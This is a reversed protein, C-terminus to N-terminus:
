KPPALRSLEAKWNQSMVINGSGYPTEENKLMLFRKGDPHVDYWADGGSVDSVAFRGRFLTVPSDFSPTGSKVDMAVAMMKDGSRYFLRRGDKAWVPETGGDSSIQFKRARDPFPQVYIEFRNTEDSAFALWQGDPSITAARELYPTPTLLRWTQKGNTELTWIDGDATAVLINGKMSWGGLHLHQDSDALAEEDSADTKRLFVQRTRNAPNNVAYTVRRVDPKWIPTEADNAKFTLRSLTGSAFQYLWIDPGSDSGGGIGVVIEKGDPSLRPFEYNRKPAQLPEERGHSDVWVLARRNLAEGGPIYAISGERSAAFEVAGASAYSVLVDEIVTVPDGTVQLTAADFSAALLNGGRAFLLHGSSIYHPSAGGEVLIRRERTDLRFAGIAWNPDGKRASAFVIAKGDPLISPWLLYAESKDPKLLEQPAGGSASVRWLTGFSDFVISDDPLWTASRMAAADCLTFAAGGSVPIKRLKNDASLFGIWEGSPSFFPAAAGETGRIPAPDLRDASRLYIRTVGSSERAVFLLRSGDPSLAVSRMGVGSLLTVNSPLAIAFRTLTATPQPQRQFVFWALLSALSFGAALAVMTRRSITPKQQLAEPGSVAGGGTSMSENLIFQVVAIDTIRHKRDKTLCQQVLKRIGFPLRAPLASWDPDRGVVAELTESVDDGGFPRKGTLMEYLVVGFAWVDSSTDTVGGKAQEPSMYPATGLILGPISLLVRPDAPDNQSAAHVLKALGFDLVTVQGDPAVKINAPKLDRHVIGKRHAAELANAIQRAIDLAEDIPIPGRRLREELTEGEVLEMVICCQATSDELGYIRAINPHNMSALMQAERQLLSLRDSGGALRGPLLKLAVDRQLKSDRARFVVGMGGEGLRSTIEFSGIRTGAPIALDAVAAELFRSAAPEYKLLSEVESRVEEEGRCHEDLFSSRAPTDLERAALYLDQIKEWQGRTV